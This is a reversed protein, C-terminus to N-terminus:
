RRTPTSPPDCLVVPGGAAQREKRVALFLALVGTLCCGLGFGSIWYLFGTWFNM